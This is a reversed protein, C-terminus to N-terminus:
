SVLCSLHGFLDTRPVDDDETVHKPRPRTLKHSNKGPWGPTRRGRTKTLRTTIGCSYIASDNGHHELLKYLIVVSSYLARLNPQAVTSTRLIPAHPHTDLRSSGPNRGGDVAAMDEHLLHVDRGQIGEKGGELIRYRADAPSRSKHCSIISRVHLKTALRIYISIMGKCESGFTIDGPVRFRHCSCCNPWVDM